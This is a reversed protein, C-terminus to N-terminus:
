KHQIPKVIVSRTEEMVLIEHKDNYVTIFTVPEQAEKYKFVVIMLNNLKLKRIIEYNKPDENNENLLKIIKKNEEQDNLVFNTIKKKDDDHLWSFTRLILHTLELDTM